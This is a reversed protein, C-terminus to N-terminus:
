RLSCVGRRFRAPCDVSLCVFILGHYVTVHCKHLNHQTRDFGAPMLHPPRLEGDLNYTWAHYPCTLLRKNGQQELCVRSGRHRCVNFLANVKDDSERIIIISENGINFLFYDGKDPIRSEHDVLLWRRSLLREM